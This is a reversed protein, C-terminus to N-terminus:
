SGPLQVRLACLHHRPLEGPVIWVPPSQVPLLIYKDEAPVMHDYNVNGSEFDISGKALEFIRIYSQNTDRDHNNEIHCAEACKRCGNCVSLNLAYGFQVGPLAPDDSIQVDAGYEEKTERELRAIVDRMEEPGLEQYHSQLYEDLSLNSTFNQLPEMAKVFAAAGLTAGITAIATRRTIDSM